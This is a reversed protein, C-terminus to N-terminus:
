IEKVVEKVLKEQQATTVGDALVRQTAKLVLNAVEHQLEKQADAKALRAAVTAQAIIKDQEKEAETLLRHKLEEGSKKAQTLLKKSEEQTAALQKQREIEAMKRQAAIAAADDMSKKIKARREELLSVVPKYAFRWLVLALITFNIIQAVLSTVNLGLKHILEAM